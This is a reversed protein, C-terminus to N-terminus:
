RRIVTQLLRRAAAEDQRLQEVLAAADAFTQTARLRGVLDIRVLTGYWNRDADFVHVEIQRENDGFTPRAGLNMMGDFAGERTHARVAYVGDPPLLKEPALPALNLTRFGLVRGRGEGATVRGSLAYPRGLGAAALDLDGDAIARRIVSSSVASGDDSMVPALERVTFGRAAGLRRLANIDGLRGRGFGHDHGVLLESLGFRARLVDDVFAEADLAALTPTFPVVAVYSVGTSILSELKETFTTLLRPAHEPRLVQLPHPDFTVVVSTRGSEEARSAVHRLVDQHGRHMGDFTGVTIVSGSPGIPLGRADTM